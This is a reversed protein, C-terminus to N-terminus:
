KQIIFKDKDDNSKWKKYTRLILFFPEKIDFVRTESNLSYRLIHFSSRIIIIENESSNFKKIM